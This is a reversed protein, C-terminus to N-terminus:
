SPCFQTILSKLALNYLLDYNPNREIYTIISSTYRRVLRRSHGKGGYM